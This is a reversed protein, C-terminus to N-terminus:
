NYKKPWNIERIPVQSCITAWLQNTRSNVLEAKKIPKTAATLEKGTRKNEKNPPTITSRKGL